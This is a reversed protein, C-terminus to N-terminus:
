VTGLVGLCKHHCVRDLLRTTVRHEQVKQRLLQQLALVGKQGICLSREVDPVLSSGLQLGDVNSSHCVLLYPHVAHGAHAESSSAAFGKSGDVSCSARKKSVGIM